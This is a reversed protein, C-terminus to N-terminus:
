AVGAVMLVMLAWYWWTGIVYNRHMAPHKDGTKIHLIDTNKSEIDKQEASAAASTGQAVKIDYVPTSLTVYQGNSPNFYVFRDSGIKFQGTAQPVFTYEVTMTGSVNSGNVRTDYDTHPNYLEFESPFDIEPEKVYKINGTSLTVTYILTAPDNTRFSNGVLRSDITFTGVAGSFGEPQPSPLSKIEISASNSSVKIDREQPTRM